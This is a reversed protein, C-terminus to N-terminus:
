HSINAPDHLPCHGALQSRPCSVAKFNHRFGAPVGDTCATAQSVEPITRQTTTRLPGGSDSLVRPPSPQGLLQGSSPLAEVGDPCPSPTRITQQQSSVAGRAGSTPRRGNTRTSLRLREHRGGISVSRAIFELSHNDYYSSCAPSASSEPRPWPQSCPVLRGTSAQKTRRRTWDSQENGFRPLARPLCSLHPALARRAVVLKRGNRPRRNSRPLQAPSFGDELASSMRVHSPWSRSM